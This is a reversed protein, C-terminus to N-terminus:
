KRCLKNYRDVLEKKYYIKAVEYCSQMKLDHDAAVVASIFRLIKHAYIESDKSECPKYAEVQSMVEDFKDKYRAAKYIERDQESIPYKM